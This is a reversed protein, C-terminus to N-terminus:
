SISQSYKSLLYQTLYQGLKQSYCQSITQTWAEGGLGLLFYTEHPCLKPRDQETLLVKIKDVIAIHWAEPSSAHNDSDPNAINKNDFTRISFVNPKLAM